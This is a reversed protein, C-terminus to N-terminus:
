AAGLLVAQSLVRRYQEQQFPSGLLMGHEISVGAQREKQLMVALQEM